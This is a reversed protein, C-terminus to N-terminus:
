SLLPPARSSNSAPPARAPSVDTFATEIRARPDHPVPPTDSAIAPAQLARVACVVCTRENHVRPHSGGKQEVHSKPVRGDHDLVPAVGVAVQLVLM